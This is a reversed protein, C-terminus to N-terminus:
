FYGCCFVAVYFSTVLYLGLQMQLRRSISSLFIPFYSNRVLNSRNCSCRFLVNTKRMHFTESEIKSCNHYLLRTSEFSGSCFDIRVSLFSTMVMVEVMTWILYGFGASPFSVDWDFSSEPIRSCSDFFGSFLSPM